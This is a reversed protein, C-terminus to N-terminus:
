RASIAAAVRSTVTMPSIREPLSARLEHAPRRRFSRADQVGPSSRPARYSWASTRRASRDTHTTSVPVQPRTHFASSQRLFLSERFLFLVRTECGVVTAASIAIGSNQTSNRSWALLSIMCSWFGLEPLDDSLLQVSSFPLHLGLVFGPMIEVSVLM